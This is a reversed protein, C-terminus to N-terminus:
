WRPLRILINTLILRLDKTQTLNELFKYESKAALNDHERYSGYTWESNMTEYLAIAAKTHITSTRAMASYLKCYDSCYRSYPGFFYSCYIERLRQLWVYYHM